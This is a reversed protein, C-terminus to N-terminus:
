HVAVSYTPPLQAVPERWEGIEPLGPDGGDTDNAVASRGFMRAWPPTQLAHAAAGDDADWSTMSPAGCRAFARSREGAGTAIAYRYAIPNFAADM